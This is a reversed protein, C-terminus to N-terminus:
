NKGQHLIFNYSLFLALGISLPIGLLLSYSWNYEQFVIPKMNGYAVYGSWFFPHNTMRYTAIFEKKANWLAEDKPQGAKLNKYFIPMFNATSNDSVRWLTTVMSKAGAYSFGKGIGVIGEGRKIEGLGTECASLVVLEAPIKLNFLARVYLFRNEKKAGTEAFVLYSYDGAEDNSKGHTALHLVKGKQIYQLFAQKTAALGTIVKGGIYNKINEVEERNYKLPGLGERFYAISNFSDSTPKFIPAIGVFNEDFSASKTNYLENLWKASHAYSISYDELLYRTGQKDLNQPLEKILADFPIYGISGDTVIIVKGSLDKELPQILVKYLEFGLQHTVAILSDNRQTNVLDSIPRYNYISKRFHNIKSELADKNQLFHYTKFTDRNILYVYLISDTLTYEILSQNELLINDQINKVTSNTPKFKLQQYRPYNTEIENILYEYDQKLNFIDNNLQGILKDNKVVQENEEYRVTELYTINSKLLNEKERTLQPIGSTSFAKNTNITEFLTLNKSQESISFAESLFSTRQTQQFLYHKVEIGKQFVEYYNTTLSEKASQEQYKSLLYNILDINNSLLKDAKHMLELDTKKKGQQFFNEATWYNLYVRNTLQRLGVKERTIHGKIVTKAEAFYTTSKDFDELNLYCIAKAMNAYFQFYFQFTNITEAKHLYSLATKYDKVELILHDIISVYCLVIDYEYSSKDSELGNLAIQFHKWAIDHNNEKSEKEGKRRHIEFQFFNDKPNTIRAQDFNFFSEKYKKLFHYADGIYYYLNAEQKIEKPYLQQCFHLARKYYTIAKHHDAITRYLKGISLYHNVIETTDIPTEKLKIDLNKQAYKIGLDYNGITKYNLSLQDYFKILLPYNPPSDLELLAVGKQFSKNSSILLKRAQANLGILYHLNSIKSGEKCINLAKQYYSLAEDHRELITLAQGNVIYANTLFFKDISDEKLPAIAKNIWELAETAKATKFHYAGKLYNLKAVELRNEEQINQEITIIVNKLVETKNSDIYEQAISFQQNLLIQSTQALTIGLSWVLFLVFFSVKILPVKM